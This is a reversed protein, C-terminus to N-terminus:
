RKRLELLPTFDLVPERCLSPITENHQSGVIGSLGLEHDNNDFDCQNDDMLASEDAALGNSTHHHHQHLNGADHHNFNHDGLSIPDALGGLLAAAAAATVAVVIPTVCLCTTATHLRFTTTM